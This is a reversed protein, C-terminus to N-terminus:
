KSATEDEASGEWVVDSDRDWVEVEDGAAATGSLEDKLVGAVASDSVCGIDDDVDTFEAAASALEGTGM